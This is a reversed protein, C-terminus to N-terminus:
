GGPRVLLIELGEDGGERLRTAAVMWRRRLDQELLDTVRVAEADRGEVGVAVDDVEDLFGDIRRRVQREDADVQEVGLDVFGDCRDFGGFAALELDGVRDLPQDVV